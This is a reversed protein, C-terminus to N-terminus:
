QYRWKRLGAMLALRAAAPSAYRFYRRSDVSDQPEGPLSGWAWDPLLGRGGGFSRDGRYESEKWWTFGDENEEGPFLSHVPEVGEIMVEIWPPLATLWPSPRTIRGTGSCPKCGEHALREDYFLSGADDRTIIGKRPDVKAKCEEEVAIEDLRASVVLLHGDFDLPRPTTRPREGEHSLPRLLLDGTGGCVRCPVSFLCGTGGCRVCKVSDWREGKGGTHLTRLEKRRSHLRERMAQRDPGYLLWEEEKSPFAMIEGWIRTWEWKGEKWCELWLGATANPSQARLSALCEADDCGADELADALIPFASRDHWNNRAIGIVTSTRWSPNIGLQSNM